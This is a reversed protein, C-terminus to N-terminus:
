NLNAPGRLVGGGPAKSMQAGTSCLARKKDAAVLFALGHICHNGRYADHQYEAQRAHVHDDGQDDAGQGTAQDTAQADLARELGEVAAQATAGRHRQGVGQEAGKGHRNGLGAQGVGQGVTRQRHDVALAM